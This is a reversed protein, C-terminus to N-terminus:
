DDESSDTEDDDSSRKAKTKPEPTSDRFERETREQVKRAVDPDFEDSPDDVGLEKQAKERAEVRRERRSSKKEFQECKPPGGEPDTACNWEFGPEPPPLHDPDVRKEKEKPEPKRKQPTVQPDAELGVGGHVERPADGEFSRYPAEPAKAPAAAAPPAQSADENPATINVKDRRGLADRMAKARQAPPVESPDAAAHVVGREDTWVYTQAGALRACFALLFLGLTVGTALRITRM